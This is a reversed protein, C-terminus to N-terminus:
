SLEQNDFDVYCFSQPATGGPLLSNLDYPEKFFKTRGIRIAYGLDAEGYYDMFDHHSIGSHGDSMRWLNEPTDKIVEEVIFFGVVKKVPSTEYILVRKIDKSTFSKKRYEFKKSRSRIRNVYEPKISLLVDM